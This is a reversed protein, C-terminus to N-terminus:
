VSRQTRTDDSQRSKSKHVSRNYIQMQQVWRQTKVECHPQNVTLIEKSIMLESGKFGAATSCNANLPRVAAASSIFRERHRERNIMQETEKREAALTKGFPKPALCWFFDTQDAFDSRGLKSTMPLLKEGILCVFM